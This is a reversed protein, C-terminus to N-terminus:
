VSCITPLTLHTYSVTGRWASAHSLVEPPPGDLGIAPTRGFRAVHIAWNLATTLGGADTFTTLLVSESGAAARLAASSSVIDLPSLM